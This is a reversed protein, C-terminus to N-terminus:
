RRICPLDVKQCAKEQSKIYNSMQIVKLVKVVTQGMKLLIQCEYSGEIGLDYVIQVGQGM